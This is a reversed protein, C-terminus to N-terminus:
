FNVHTLSLNSTHQYIACALVGNLRALDVESLQVHSDNYVFAKDPTVSYFAHVRLVNLEGPVHVVVFPCGVLDALSKIYTRIGTTTLGFYVREPRLTFEHTNGLEKCQTHYDILTHSIHIGNTKM